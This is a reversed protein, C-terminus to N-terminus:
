CSRGTRGERDMRAGLEAFAAATDAVNLCGDICVGHGAGCATCVYFGLMSDTPAHTGGQSAPDITQLTDTGCRGCHMVDGIASM